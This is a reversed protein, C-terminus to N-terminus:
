YKTKHNWAYNPLDVITKPAAEDPDQTDENVKPIAVPSDSVFLRGALDFMSMISDPGRKAASYYQINSGEGPLARKIQSIPGALAGSPGLEILFDAGERGSLMEHAAQEFRVPSIMNTRWYTADAPRDLRRGTVSSFMTVDESGPLPSNCYQQLLIAYHEGIKNMFKSHYALDVQLMRAFHGNEQVHSKVKELGSLEGSITVSSPSNYCAIQVSDETGQLYEQIEDSGLGVALMGVNANCVSHSYNAAQGRYYAIKVAEQPTLHGAACAAAIEGSSHGVVSQPRVGWSRLVDLIALQLATVLPQSYEPRRLHEPSRAQILEDPHENSPTHCNM